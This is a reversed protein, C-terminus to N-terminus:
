LVEGDLGGVLHRLPLVLRLHGVNIRRPQRRGVAPANLLIELLKGLLSRRSEKQTEVQTARRSAAPPPAPRQWRAAAAGRAPPRVFQGAPPMAPLRAVPEPIGPRAGPKSSGPVALAM